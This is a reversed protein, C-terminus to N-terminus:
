FAGVTELEKQYSRSVNAPRPASRMTMRKEAAPETSMAEKIRTYLKKAAWPFSAIGYNKAFDGGYGMFAAAYGGVASIYALWENWDPAVTESTLDVVTVLGPAMIDDVLKM